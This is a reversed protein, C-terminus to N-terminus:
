LAFFSKNIGGDREGYSDEQQRVLVTTPSLWLDARLM